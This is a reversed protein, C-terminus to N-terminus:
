YEINGVTKEYENNGQENVKGVLCLIGESTDQYISPEKIFATIKIRGLQLTFSENTTTFVKRPINLLTGFKSNNNRITFGQKTSRIMAHFRSVSIDIMKIDADYGRGLKYSQNLMGPILLYIARAAGKEKSASELLL